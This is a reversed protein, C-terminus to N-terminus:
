INSMYQEILRGLRSFYILAEEAQTIGDILAVGYLLHHEKKLIVCDHSVGPLEGTKGYVAIKSSTVSYALKRFQQRGMIELGLARSEENLLGDETLFKLCIGLDYASTTNEFGRRGAEFDMMKRQLKTEQLNMINICQKIQNQGLLDIIINTASNDSVVIMLSLLDVLKMETPHYLSQLIGAGGTIHAPSISISQKLDIEGSEAQRLAELLIPIKITSAAPYVAHRDKEIVGKDSEIFLSVRGHAASTLRQVDRNFQDWNM